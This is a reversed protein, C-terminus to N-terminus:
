TVKGFYLGRTFQGERKAGTRWARLIEPVQAATETTFYFEIFDVGTSFIERKRDCLWLPRSNLLESADGHGCILPFEIGMRDRIFCGGKKCGVFSKHPCNRLLMLPLRGYVIMGANGAAAMGAIGDLPTEFSLVQTVVGMSAFAALSASNTVNLGFDGHINLGAGSACGVAGLNGCVADRVGLKRLSRLQEELKSAGGFLARPIEAGVTLGEDLLATAKGDLIEELPLVVLGAGVLDPLQPLQSVSSFRLRLKPKAGGKERSFPYLKPPTFDVAKPAARKKALGSLAERRLSNLQAASVALGPLISINMEGPFFPTSGTKALKERCDAETTERHLAKQPAPGSAEARNGDGDRVALGMGDGAVRLDFDVRVRQREVGDYLAKYRKLAPAMSMVDEKGRVGFMEKQRKADFYGSTFGGRSFVARLEGSEEATVAQGSAAKKCAATAAAVYEPRKMRGEIKFASVGLNSLEGVRDILSLDKLSLVNKGDGASFPLRCPQACLGRNASRCGGFFASMYCQGSVSMCLAGHVFAELEIPSGASIEALEGASLERAVVVRSFGMAALAKVGALNHVSMQTSAHLKAKPAASRLLSALGVDQLIFADAGAVCVKQALELAKELEGDFVVTNLTFYARMGREHCYAVVAPIDGDAFNEANRRANFSSGGFYVADAGAAAAAKLAEWSGAPSLIECNNVM